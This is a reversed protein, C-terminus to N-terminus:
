LVYGAAKQAQDGHEYHLITWEDVRVRDGLPIVLTTAPHEVIAPGELVNGPGLMDMEWLQAEHWARNYYMSRTGKNAKPDPEASGLPRRTLEPKVKEVRASLGLEMITFGAAGYGSVSRNITEYLTEFAQTLQDLADDSELKAVPAAVEIDELQGTYRMMAFAECTVADSDHGESALEARAHADLEDWIKNIQRRIEDRNPESADPTIMIQVSQSHRHLYDATTCGFASFAAAFPFTLVGSFGLGRSYEAMHLPGSGGYAMLHYESPDVGRTSIISEISSRAEMEIM